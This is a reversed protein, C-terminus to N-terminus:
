VCYRDVSQQAQYARRVTRNITGLILFIDHPFSQHCVSNAEPKERQLELHPGSSSPLFMLVEGFYGIAGEWLSQEWVRDGLSLSHSACGDQLFGTGNGHAM